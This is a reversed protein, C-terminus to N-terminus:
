GSKLRETGLEAWSTGGDRSALVSQTKTQPDFTVVYLNREDTPDPAFHLIYKEGFEKSVLRWGLDKESARVLGLGVIFAYIQGSQTVHVMTALRNLVHAPQWTRGGDTSRQLGHQTAAYLTEANQSSAALVIIDPPPPGVRTWTRGGDASRQLDGYVGYMIRSDAKSVDMQHFDVPGGIGNSIKSWTRGGDTSTIFGLNGGSVPHGSAYLISPDTPHTTFGMFDDRTESLATAKGDPGVLYLGHHTALYLRSPDKVDVAIGHFHTRQALASISTEDARLASSALLTTFAIYGGLGILFRTTSLNTM